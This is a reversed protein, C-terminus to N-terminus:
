KTEGPWPNSTSYNWKVTGSAVYASIGDGSSISDYMFESGSYPFAFARPFVANESICSM